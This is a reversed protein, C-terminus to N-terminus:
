GRPGRRRPALGGRGRLRADTQVIGWVRKATARRTHEADRELRASPRAECSWECSAFHVLPLQTPAVELDRGEPEAAHPQAESVTGRQLLRASEREEPVRELAAHREEVGGFGVA